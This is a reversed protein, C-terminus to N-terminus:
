LRHTWLRRPTGPVRTHHALQARCVAAQSSPPTAIQKAQRDHRYYGTGCADNIGASLRICQMITMDAAGPPHCSGTAITNVDLSPTTGDYPCHVALSSIPFAELQHHAM